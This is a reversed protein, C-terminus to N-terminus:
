GMECGGCHSGGAVGKAPEAGLHGCVQERWSAADRTPVRGSHDKGDESAINGEM